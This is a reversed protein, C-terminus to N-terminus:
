YVADIKLWGNRPAFPASQRASKVNALNRIEHAWSCHARLPAESCSELSAPPWDDVKFRSYISVRSLYRLGSCATKAFLASRFFNASSSFADTKPPAVLAGLLADADAAM